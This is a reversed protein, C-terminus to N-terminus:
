AQRKQRNSYDFHSEERQERCDLPANVVSLHNITKCRPCKIEIENFYGIKALIRDCSRCKIIQM